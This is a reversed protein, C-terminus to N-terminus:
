ELARARFLLYGLHAYVGFRAAPDDYFRAHLALPGVPTQLILGTSATLRPRELGGRREAQQTETPRLPQANVHAFVETRWAVKGLLPRTYRLGAAAYRASRYADLFLTRADPLPAFVPAAAVSARYTALPGQSSATLELFYGWAHDAWRLPFYREATARFQVWRQNDRSAAVQSDTGPAYAAEGSVGRVAAVVRAGATAYQKRNLTSRAFQLAATLGRFTSEDLVAGSSIEPANAYHDTTSFASVSLLLRSRYRPSTGIQASLKTDQQQVQPSRADRGLLGGANQYNWRNHIIEPEVYFPRRGPVTVRLSGQAGNYFRGLSANASVSYLQRRLYRYEAGVYLNELPRSAILLGVEAALKNGRRADLSLVYGQQAASYAMRPYVNKFYDDAVLRDYGNEVEELTYYTPGRRQFFQRAYANQDDRLGQVRVDAFRLAPAGAVFQQRRRQVDAPSARRAIRQKILAMKLATATDGLAILPGVRAFDAAGYGKLNPAILVGRPGVSLTDAGSFGLTSLMGGLLADDQGRPYAAYVVDGVNVGILVDPAFERRMVDTPFNNYLGGDFLYRGDPNRIARFALPVAMSNRVADSLSGSKQVVQRRTFVEAALSRFPVFLHDFDYNARAGAPALLRALAFNLNLDSTLAARPRVVLASDVLLSLRLIAPSPDGTLYNFTKTQAPKGTVWTQFAPSRAIVEIEAPSYGAAYMAGIVAGMSTGVIYDIPIHNRELQRLVGIHALGKAGGGSLVLGVRQAWGPGAVLLLGALLLRARRRAVFGM